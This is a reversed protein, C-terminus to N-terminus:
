SPNVNMFYITVNPGPNLIFNRIQNVSIKFPSQIFVFELNTFGQLKSLDLVRNLDSPNELKITLLQVSSYLANSRNLSTLAVVDEATLKLPKLKGARNKVSNGAVYVTPHVNNHLQYFENLNSNYTNKNSLSTKSQNTTTRNQLTENEFLEYIKENQAYTVHLLLFLLSFFSVKLIVTKSDAKNM